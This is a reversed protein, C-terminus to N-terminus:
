QGLREKVAELGKERYLDFLARHATVTHMVLEFIDYEVEEGCVNCRAKDSEVNSVNM